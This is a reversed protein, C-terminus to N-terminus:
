LVQLTMIIIRELFDSLSDRVFEMAITSGLFNLLDKFLRNQHIFM